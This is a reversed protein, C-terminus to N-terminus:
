GERREFGQSHGYYGDLVLEILIYLKRSVMSVCLKQNQETEVANFPRVRIAIKVAEAM